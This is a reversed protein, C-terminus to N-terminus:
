VSRGKAFMEGHNGVPLASLVLSEIFAAFSGQAAQAAREAHQRAPPVPLLQVEVAFRMWELRNYYAQAPWNCLTFPHFEGNGDSGSQKAAAGNCLRDVFAAVAVAFRRTRLTFRDVNERGISRVAHASSHSHGDFGVVTLHKSFNVSTHLFGNSHFFACQGSLAFADFLCVPGLFVRNWGARNFPSLLLRM